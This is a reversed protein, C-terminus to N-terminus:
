VSNIGAVQERGYPSDNLAAFDIAAVWGSQTPDIRQVQDPSVIVGATNRYGGDPEVLGLQIAQQDDLGADTPLSADFEGAAAKRIAVDNTIFLIGGSIIAVGLTMVGYSLM